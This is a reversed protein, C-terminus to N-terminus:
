HLTVSGCCKKHKKGSGCPCPDNRGVKGGARRHSAPEEEGQPTLWRRAGFYRYIGPVSAAAGVILQERRQTSMPEKYPRMEPDPHHENALAFIPVLLGGHGEDDLLEAWDERRLEMGKLFGQAWDNAHAIGADDELLYPLFPEGSHLVGAVSNWHRMLLELSEQMEAEDRWGKEGGIREGGWIMRLYESPRALGPGCILAAFFGDLMEVNMARKCGELMAAIRAYEAESLPQDLRLM